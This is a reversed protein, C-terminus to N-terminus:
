IWKKYKFAAVLGDQFQNLQKDSMSDIAVYSDIAARITARKIQNALFNDSNNIISKIKPLKNIAQADLQAQISM